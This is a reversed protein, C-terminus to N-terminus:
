LPTRQVPITVVPSVRATPNETDLILTQQALRKIQAENHSVLLVIKESLIQYRILEEVLAANAPDLAATPEDFLLVKPEDILARAIALRQREGTSLQALPRDLLETELNLTHLLKDRKATSRPTDPFAPRPTDSWWGPEAAVYRVIKRWRPAEMENRDEGDLCIHGPAEDLDAIARLLRTKGSGSPGQIALCQGELLEFSIAARGGVKLHEVRLM